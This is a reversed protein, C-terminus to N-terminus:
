LNIDLIGYANIEGMNAAHKAKMIRRFKIV